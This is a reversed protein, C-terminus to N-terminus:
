TRRGTALLRSVARFTLATVILTIFTSLVLTAVLPAGYDAILDGHQVVGVAAPIFLLSLHGLIGRAVPALEGAPPNHRVLLLAALLVAGVVPGPVATGLTRTIAEGILQFSLLILLANLM